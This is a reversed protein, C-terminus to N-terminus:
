KGWTSAVVAGAAVQEDLTLFYPKLGAPPQPLKALAKKDVTGKKVM